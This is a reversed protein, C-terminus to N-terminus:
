KEEQLLGSGVALNQIELTISQRHAQAAEAELEEVLRDINQRADEMLLYRSSNEAAASELLCAYLQASLQQVVVRAILGAPDTQIIPPFRTDFFDAEPPRPIQPPILQLARAAYRGSGLYANYLVDVRDVTNSEYATLWANALANAVASTPLAAPATMLLREVQFGMRELARAGYSGIAQLKVTEGRRAAQELYRGARDALLRNFAGCLGRESGIVLATVRVQRDATEAATKAGAPSQMFRSPIYALIEGTRRAFELAWERRKLAAKWNGMAITRLANLIPEVSRVNELRDKTKQETGDM